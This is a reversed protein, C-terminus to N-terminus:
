RPPGHCSGVAAAYNFTPPVLLFLEYSPSCGSVPIVPLFFHQFLLSDFQPPAVCVAAWGISRLLISWVVLACLLAPHQFFRVCLMTNCMLDSLRNTPISENAARRNLIHCGLEGLGQRLGWARRLPSRSSSTRGPYVPRSPVPPHPGGVPLLPHIPSPPPPPTQGFVLCIHSNPPSLPVM